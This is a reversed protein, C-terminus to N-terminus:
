KTTPKRGAYGGAVVRCRVRDHGAQNKGGDQEKPLSRVRCEKFCLPKQLNQEASWEEKGDGAERPTNPCESWEVGKALDGKERVQLVLLQSRVQYDSTGIEPDTMWLIEERQTEDPRSGGQTQVAQKEIDKPREPDDDSSVKLLPVENGLETLAITPILTGNRHEKRPLPTRPHHKLPGLSIRAARM